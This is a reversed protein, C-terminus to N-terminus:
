SRMWVPLLNLRLLRLKMAATSVDFNKALHAINCACAQAAPILLQEPMLLSAAFLNAEGERHDTRGLDTPRCYLSSREPTLQAHLIWHGIEHAITFRERASSRQAEQRDVWITRESALLLGSLRGSDQPAGPLLRLDDGHEIWLLLHARAIQEVPIPPTRPV